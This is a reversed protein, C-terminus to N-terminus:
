DVHWSSVAIDSLIDSSANSSSDSFKLDSGAEATEVLVQLETRVAQTLMGYQQELKIFDQKTSSLAAELEKCRCSLSLSLLLVQMLTDAYVHCVTSPLRGYSTVTIVVVFVLRQDQHDGM